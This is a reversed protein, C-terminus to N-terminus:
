RRSAKRYPSRIPMVLIQARRKAARRPWLISVVVLWPAFGTLIAAKAIAYAFLYVDAFAANTYATM